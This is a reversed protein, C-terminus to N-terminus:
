YFKFLHLFHVVQSIILIIIQQSKISSSTMEFLENQSFELEFLEDTITFRRYVVGSGVNTQRDINISIYHLKYAKSSM